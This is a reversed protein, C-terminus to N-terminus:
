IEYSTKKGCYFFSTTHMDYHIILLETYRGLAYYNLIKRHFKVFVKEFCERRIRQWCKVNFISITIDGDSCAYMLLIELFKHVKELQSM